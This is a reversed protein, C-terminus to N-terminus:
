FEFDHLAPLRRREYTRDPRKGQVWDSGWLFTSDEEPPKRQVAGKTAFPPFFSKTKNPEFFVHVNPLLGTEGGM